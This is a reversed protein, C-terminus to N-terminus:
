QQDSESDRTDASATRSGDNSVPPGALLQVSRRVAVLHSSYYANDVRDIAVQHNHGASAHIFYGGGIYMATHDIFPHHCAFYMRDGPVWQKWDGAAVDHPVDYGVAAQDRSVRPLTIGCTSYIAQVFGSCDIGEKTDGGWVYPVGLYTQAISVMHMGLQTTDGDAVPASGADTGPTPTVQYDLLQVDKKAIFGLSHDIMLVAYQTPTEGSVALYQGQPCVSLVRGARDRGAIIPAQAVTVVALRGVASDATAVPEIVGRSPLSPARLYTRSHADPYSHTRHYYRTPTDAVSTPAESADVPTDAWSPTPISLTSSHNTDLTAPDAHAAYTTLSILSMACLAALAPVPRLTL